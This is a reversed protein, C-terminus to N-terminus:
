NNLVVKKTIIQDNVNLRVYYVGAAYSAMDVEYLGKAMSSTVVNQLEAGTVDYVGVKVTENEPLDVLVNFKGSTPNPYVRLTEGKTLEEVGLTYEKASVEIVLTVPTALNGSNDKTQVIVSYTGYDWANYDNYIIEANAKLEVPSTENDTYSFRDLISFNSFIGVRYYAGVKSVINPIERDVVKVYRSRVSVNGSADTATYKDEYTGLKNWNVNSVLTLSVETNDYLNDTVSANVPSYTKGFDHLITDATHLEIVPAIYDEVVYRVQQTTTNGSEDVATYTILTAGKFRTDVSAEAGNGPTATLTLNNTLTNYNDSATTVDVFVSKLQLDVVWIPNTKDASANDIVPLETDRVVITRTAESSNGQADRVTYVITYTGIKETNVSGNVIVATTLIDGGPLDIATFGPEIWVGGVEVTDMLKPNLVLNPPTQDKVVKIVRTVEAAKNGSADSVNFTLYYYNALSLDVEDLGTVVIMSSIDGQSADMAVAGPDTYMATANQEVYLTDGGKLTIVPVDGDNVVRVSYDEFEGVRNANSNSAFGCPENMDSGYSIAVRMRTNAAFAKTYDPVVFSSSWVKNTGAAETAVLENATFQGDVNWDIWIKRNATNANSTRAVEFDYRAGFNLNIVKDTFDQYAELGQTSTNDLVVAGSSYDTLKVNSIGVDPTTIVGVIPDCYEVVIIYKAKITTNTSAAEKLTNYAKLQITYAGPKKFKFMRTKMGNNGGVIEVDDPTGPFVSWEFVNANDTIATLLITEGTVPRQNDATFDITTQQGADKVFITKDITDKGLCSTAILRLINNNNVTFQYTLDEGLGVLEEQQGVPIVYWEYTVKGKVNKSTNTYTETAGNFVSAAGEFDAEPLIGPGSVSTWNAVFGSDVAVGTSVFSIYMQGSNATVKKPKNAQSFGGAPHLAIGTPDEGDYIYMKAGAAVKFQKFDLTVSVAGCPAILAEIEDPSSYNLAPGGKDYLTGSAAEIINFPLSTEGGMNYTKKTIEIYNKKCVISSPGRSNSAQLCVDWIGEGIFAALMSPNQNIDLDNGRLDGIYDGNVTDTGQVFSWNWYTPGYKSLDTLTIEDFLDVVVGSAVFDIQPAAPPQVIVISRTSSDSGFCNENVLKVQHRGTTKFVHRGNDTFYKYESAGETFTWTAKSGPSGNIGTVRTGLYATDPLAFNASISTPAGMTITYDETEGYNVNSCSMSANWAASFEYDTRLRLRTTGSVAGNCPITFNYSRTNNAALAAWGQSFYEGQDAFDGDGNLDIWMALNTGYITGGQVTITYSSGASLSFVPSTSLLTYNPVATQNCADNAKKFISQGNSTIEVSGIYMNYTPCGAATHSPTCYTQASAFISAFVAALGLTWRRFQVGSILHELFHQTFKEKM